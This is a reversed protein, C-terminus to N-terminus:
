QRDTWLRCQSPAEAWAWDFVYEGYSHDKVYLPLAGELRRDVKLLLFQPTWGTNPAACGTSHLGNLFAHSLLPHDGALRNWEAASIHAISDAVEITTSVPSGPMTAPPTQPPPM